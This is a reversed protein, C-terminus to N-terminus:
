VDSIKSFKLSILGKASSAWQRGTNGASHQKTEECVLSKWGALLGSPRLAPCAPPPCLAKDRRGGM